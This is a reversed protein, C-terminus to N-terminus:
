CILVVDVVESLRNIACHRTGDVQKGIDVSETQCPCGIRLGRLDPNFLVRDLKDRLM